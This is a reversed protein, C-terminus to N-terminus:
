YKIKFYIRAATKFVALLMIIGFLDWRFIGHAFLEFLFYIGIVVDTMIIAFRNSKLDFLKYREDFKNESFLWM